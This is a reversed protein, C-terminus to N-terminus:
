FYPYHLSHTLKLGYVLEDILAFHGTILINYSLFTTKDPM